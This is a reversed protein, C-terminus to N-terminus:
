EIELDESLFIEDDLFELVTMSFGRAIMMVTNLEIGKNKASMIGNMTGHQIGSNQELMYQSMNREKLLKNVRKAVAQCLTM